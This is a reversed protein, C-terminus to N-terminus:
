NTFGVLNIIELCEKPNSQLIFHGGKVPKITLNSCIKEFIKISRNSVLYDSKAKIYTCPIKLITTPPKLEAINKLRHILIENSVNNIATYFIKELERGGINGFLFHNLTWFPLLQKKILDFPLINISKILISPPTLFSAAFIIHKIDINERCALKYGIYGSYSEAVLIVKTNGIAKELYQIQTQYDVTKQILPLISFHDNQPLQKLLFKFLLGTGDLGPLLIIKM